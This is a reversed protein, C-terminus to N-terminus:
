SAPCRFSSRSTLGNLTPTRKSINYMTGATLRLWPLSSPRPNLSVLRRLSPLHALHGLPFYRLIVLLEADTLNAVFLATPESAQHVVHVSVMLVVFGPFTVNTIHPSGEHLGEVSVQLLLVPGAATGTGDTPFHEGSRLGHQM